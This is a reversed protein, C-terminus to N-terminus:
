DLPDTRQGHNRSPLNQVRQQTKKLYVTMIQLIIYIKNNM